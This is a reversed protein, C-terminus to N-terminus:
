VRRPPENALLINSTQLDCLFQDWRQHPFPPLHHQPYLKKPFFKEPHSFDTAPFNLFVLPLCTVATARGLLPTNRPGTSNSGTLNSFVSGTTRTGLSLSAIKESISANRPACKQLRLKRRKNLDLRGCLDLRM